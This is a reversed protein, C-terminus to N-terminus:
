GMLMALHRVAEDENDFEEVPGFGARNRWGIQWVVRGFISCKRRIDWM